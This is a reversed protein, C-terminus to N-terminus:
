NYNDFYELATKYFDYFQLLIIHEPLYQMAKQYMNEILEPKNNFLRVM